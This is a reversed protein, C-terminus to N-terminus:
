LKGLAAQSIQGFGDAGSQNLENYDPVENKCRQLWAKINPYVDFINGVTAQLIFLMPFLVIKEDISIFLVFIVEMNSASALLALDAITLHDGAAYVQQALFMDLFGLANDLEKKKAPDLSSAGHFIVPYQTLLTFDIFFILSNKLSFNVYYNSFSPTFVGIDFYLRM